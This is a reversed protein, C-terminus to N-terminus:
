DARKQINYMSLLNNELPIKNTECFASIEGREDNYIRIMKLNEGYELVSKNILSNITAFFIRNVNRYGFEKINSRDIIREIVEEEVCLDVNEELCTKKCSDVFDNCIEIADKKSANDLKFIGDIRSFFENGIRSKLAGSVQDQKNNIFGSTKIENCTDTNSTFFLVTNKFSTIRGQNDTVIGEDLLELLINIVDHHAKDIEDFLIVKYNNKDMERALRGKQESGVYGPPAGILKSVSHPESFDSMDFKLLSQEGYLEKSLAKVLATKGCGTSGELLISVPSAKKIKGNSYLVFKVLDNIVKSQGHVIREIRKIVNRYDTCSNSQPLLEAIDDATIANKSRIRALSAAEDILDLAKDPLYKNIIEKNSIKVSALVASENIQINHHKEYKEKVGLLIKIATEESPENVLIKQFRRDLAGDKEIVQAYEDSTTAGIVSVEGRALEPKMINAANLTGEGMGASVINHLEDIMLIINGVKKVEDFIAKIREEFDGRYKAGAILSSIELSVIRKHCLLDPVDGSAIRQAIGDVIATKGVGPPGVLCPNNKNKRLLVRMVREIEHDRELVPDLKGTIAKLTIDCSYNNIVPTEKRMEKIKELSFRREDPSISKMVDGEFMYSNILDCAKCKSNSFLSESIDCVDINKSNRKSSLLYADHMVKYLNESPVVNNVAIKEGKGNINIVRDMVLSYDIDKLVKKFNNKVDYSNKGLLALLLHETGVFSHGLNGAITRAFEILERAESSLVCM